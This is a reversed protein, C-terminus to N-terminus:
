ITKGSISAAVSAVPTELSMEGASYRASASRYTAQHQRALRWPRVIVTYAITTPRDIRVWAWLRKSGTAADSPCAQVSEAIEPTRM